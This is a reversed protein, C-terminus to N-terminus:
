KTILALREATARDNVNELLGARYFPLDALLEIEDTEIASLLDLMRLEGRDLRNETEPLCRPSYVGCLPQLRGAHSPVVAWAADGSAAHSTAAELLHSVLERSVKPLDCALVFVARGGAHALATDLGALPGNGPRRDAIEEAGLDSHEGIQRSVVVVDSLEARLIRVARAGLREGDLELSAKDVGMRRSEGGTLVAGLIQATAAM